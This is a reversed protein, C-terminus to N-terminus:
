AKSDLRFLRVTPKALRSNWPRSAACWAVGALCPFGLWGHSHPSPSTPRLSMEPAPRSPSNPALGWADAAVPCAAGRSPLDWCAGLNPNAAGPLPPPRCGRPQCAKLRGGDPGWPTPGSKRAMPPGPQSADDAHIISSSAFIEESLNAVIDPLVSAWAADASAMAAPMAKCGLAAACSCSLSNM